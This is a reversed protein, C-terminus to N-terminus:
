AASTANIWVPFRNLFALAREHGYDRCYRSIYPKFRALTRAHYDAPFEIDEFRVLQAGIYHELTGYFLLLEDLCERVFAEAVDEPRGLVQLSRLVKSEPVVQFEGQAVELRRDTGDLLLQAAQIRVNQAAKDQLRSAADAQRWRLDRERQLRGARLEAIAKFSAILAGVIGITTAM